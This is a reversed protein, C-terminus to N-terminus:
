LSTHLFGCFPVTVPVTESFSPLFVMLTLLTSYASLAFYASNIRRGSNRISCADGGALTAIGNQRSHNAAQLPRPVIHLTLPPERTFSM